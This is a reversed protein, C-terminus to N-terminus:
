RNRLLMALEVEIHINEDPSAFSALQPTHIKRGAVPSSPNRPSLSKSRSLSLIGGPSSLPPAVPSTTTPSHPLSIHGPILKANRIRKASKRFKGIASATALFGKIKPKTKSSDLKMDNTIKIRDHTENSFDENQDTIEGKQLMDFDSIFHLHLRDKSPSIMDSQMPVNLSPVLHFM